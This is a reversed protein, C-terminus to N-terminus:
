RETMWLFTRGAAKPHDANLIPSLWSQLRQATAGTQGTSALIVARTVAFLAAFVLAPNLSVNNIIIGDMPTNKYSPFILFPFYIDTKSKCFLCGWPRCCCQSCPAGLSLVWTTEVICIQVCPAQGGWSSVQSRHGCEASIFTSILGVTIGM